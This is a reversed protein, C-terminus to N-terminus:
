FKVLYNKAELCVSFAKKFKELELAVAEERQQAQAAAQQEAETEANRGQRRGRATGAAAGWAAGKGADDSAIEGIVAGTAAGKLAGRMGSGKAASSAAQADAVAQEQNAHADKRLEFPDTGSNHVAWDYCAAEDQSQTAAEQGKAPFVYIDLASGLSQQQATAAIPVLVGILVAFMMRM